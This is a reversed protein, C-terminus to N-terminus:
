KARVFAHWTGDAGIVLRWWTYRKADIMAQVESAPAIRLLEVHQAPTLAAIPLEAHYPWVYLRNNEIDRGLPLTVHGADLVNALIALMERGAGDRSTRSLFTIPDESGAGFDPKLENMQIAPRLDEIRGSRVAALIAERMDIVPPPLTDSGYTV